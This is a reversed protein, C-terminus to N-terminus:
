TYWSYFTLNIRKHVLCVNIVIFAFLGSNISDGWARGIAFLDNLDWAHFVM